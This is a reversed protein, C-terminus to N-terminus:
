RSIAGWRTTSPVPIYMCTSTFATRKTNERQKKPLRPTYQVIYEPKRTRSPTRACVTQPSVVQAFGEASSFSSSVVRPRGLVWELCRDLSMGSPLNRLPLDSENEGRKSQGPAWTNESTPAHAPPLCQVTHYPPLYVMSHFMGCGVM